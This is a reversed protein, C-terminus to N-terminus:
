NTKDPRIRDAWAKFADEDRWLALAADLDGPGSKHSPGNHYYLYDGARAAYWDDATVTRGQSSLWIRSPDAM